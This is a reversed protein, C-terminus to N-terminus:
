IFYPSSGAAARPVTRERAPVADFVNFRFSFEHGDRSVTMVSALNGVSYMYNPASWVTSVLGNFM